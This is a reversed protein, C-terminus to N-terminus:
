YPRWLFDVLIWPALSSDACIRLETLRRIKGENLHYPPSPGLIIPAKTKWPPEPKLNWCNTKLIGVM